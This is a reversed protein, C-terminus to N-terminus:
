SMKGLDIKKRLLIEEFLLIGDPLYMKVSGYVDMETCIM